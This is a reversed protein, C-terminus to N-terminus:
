SVISAIISLIESLGAVLFCAIVVPMMTKKYEAREEVSGVMYRIGIITLVLVSVIAAINRLTAVIKAGKDFLTTADGYALSTKYEEPDLYSKSTTAYNVTSLSILVFIFTIIFIIIKTNKRKM